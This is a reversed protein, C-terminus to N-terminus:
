ELGAANGVVDGDGEEFLSEDIIMNILESTEDQMKRIYALKQKVVADRRNKLAAIIAARNNGHGTRKGKEIHSYGTLTLGSLTAVQTPSLGLALRAAELKHRM